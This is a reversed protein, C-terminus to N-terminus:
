FLFVPVYFSFRFSLSYSFLFFILLIFPSAISRGTLLRYVSERYVFSIKDRRASKLIGGIWGGWFDRNGQPVCYFDYGYCEWERKKRRSLSLSLSFCPPLSLSYIRIFHIQQMICSEVNSRDDYEFPLPSLFISLWFLKQFLYLSNEKGSSLFIRGREREKKRKRKRQDDIGPRPNKEWVSSAIIGRPPKM